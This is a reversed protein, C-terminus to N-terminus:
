YLIAIGKKPIYEIMVTTLETRRDELDKRLVEIKQNHGIIEGNDLAIFENGYESQLKDYDKSVLKNSKEMKRILQLEDEM